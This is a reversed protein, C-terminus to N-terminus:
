QAGGEALVERKVRVKKARYAGQPANERYERLRAKMESWSDESIEHEWGYGYNSWLQWEDQTKRQYSM